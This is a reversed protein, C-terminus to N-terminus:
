ALYQAFITLFYLKRAWQLSTVLVREQTGCTGGKRGPPIPPFSPLFTSSRRSYLGSFCTRVSLRAKQWRKSCGQDQVGPLGGPCQHLHLSVGDRPCLPCPWSASYWWSHPHTRQWHYLGGCVKQCCWILFHRSHRHRQAWICWYWACGTRGTWETWLPGAPGRAM